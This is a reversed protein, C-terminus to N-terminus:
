RTERDCQDSNGPRIGRFRSSHFSLRCDVVLLLYHTILLSDTSNTPNTPNTSNFVYDPTSPSLCLRTLYNIPQITSYSFCVVSFVLTTSTYSPPHLLQYLSTSCGGLLKSAGHLGIASPHAINGKVDSVPELAVFPRRITPIQRGYCESLCTPM